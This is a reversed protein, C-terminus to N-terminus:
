RLDQVSCLELFVALLRRDQKLNILDLNYGESLLALKVEARCELTKGPASLQIIKALRETYEQQNM